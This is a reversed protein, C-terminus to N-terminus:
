ICMACVHVAQTIFQKWQSDSVRPELDEQREISQDLFSWVPKNYGGQNITSVAQLHLSDRTCKKRELQKKKERDRGKQTM